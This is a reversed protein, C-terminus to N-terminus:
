EIKNKVEHTEHFATPAPVDEGSLHAKFIQEPGNLAVHLTESSSTLCRLPITPM